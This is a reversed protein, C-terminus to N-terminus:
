SLKRRRRVAAALRELVPVTSEWSICSDTISQGYVLPRGAVLDQRGEVLHSELMVGCVDTEGGEMRVALDEVVQGQRRYDKRSNGHSCDIMVREPLRAAHLKAVVAKISDTDYNPGKASGRLIVHCADNGKTSVIASLGQKTVSLFHHPDRAARIADICIQTNGDTGNKFGVPVSLGSALERHVQSETTRAGIAGWSILDTIFQPSITDLFESGAPLGLNGLDLLLRRAKRLGRNINFSGDLDPDNILGKWGVTTRPKEFYVRMVICLDEALSTRYPVLRQAYELAADPDHISCPGVVVLLRDDNGRVIATAQERAEAVITSAQESLPLEEILIAPPILPRLAAIRLDDTQHLM